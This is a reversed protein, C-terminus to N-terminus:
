ITSKGGKKQAACSPNKLVTKLAQQWYLNKEWGFHHITTIALYCRGLDPVYELVLILRITCCIYSCM